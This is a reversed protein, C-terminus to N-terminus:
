LETEGTSNGIIYKRNESDTEYKGNIFHHAMILDDFICLKRKTDGNEGSNKVRIDRIFKSIYNDENNVSYNLRGWAFVVKNTMKEIDRMRERKYDDCESEFVKRMLSLERKAEPLAGSMIHGTVRRMRGMIKSMDVSDTEAVNKRIAELTLIKDAYSTEEFESDSVFYVGAGTCIEADQLRSLRSNRILSGISGTEANSMRHVAVASYLKNNCIGGDKDASYINKLLDCDAASDYTKEDPRHKTLGKAIEALGEVIRISNFFPHSKKNFLIGGSATLYPPLEAKRLADALESNEKIKKASERRFEKCFSIVFDYALCPELLITVDDGGIVLPRYYPIIGRHYSESQVTVMAAKVSNVTVKELMGSFELMRTSYERASKGNLANKLAMLTQGMGNGDLHILAIDNYKSSETKEEFNNILKEPSYFRKGIDDNITKEYLKKKLNTGDQMGSITEYCLDQYETESGSEKGTIVVAPSGTRPTSQAIASASPFSVHCINNGTQLLRFAKDLLEHFDENGETLADNFSMEPFMSQFYLLWCSRLKELLEPNSSWCYFAGGKARFFHIVDDKDSLNQNNLDTKELLGSAKLVQYLKSDSTNDIANSLADSVKVVNKLRGSRGLYSQISKAEFLYIGTM